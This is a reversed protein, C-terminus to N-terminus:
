ARGRATDTRAAPRRAVPRAAGAREMAGSAADVMPEYRAVAARATAGSLVAVLDAAVARSTTEAIDVLAFVRAVSQAIAPQAVLLARAVLDSDVGAARLMLVFGDGSPDTALRAAEAPNLALAEAAAEAILHGKGTETAATVLAADLAESRRFPRAAAAIRAPRAELAARIAARRDPDALLYLPAIAGADVDERRLLAAALGPARAARDVLAALTTEGFRAAENAALTELVVDDRHHALTRVLDSEIDPRSAVACAEGAGGEIALEILMHRPVHPFRALLPRSVSVDDAILREVVARPAGPEDALKRAVAARADAPVVDLLPLILDEYRRVEADTRHPKQVFLDTLVRALTPRVDVGEQRSLRELTDVPLIEDSM